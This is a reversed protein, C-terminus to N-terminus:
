ANQAGGTLEFYIEELSEHKLFAEIVAINNNVLVKIVESSNIEKSTVILEDNDIKINDFGFKDNLIDQAFTVNDVRLVLSKQDSLSLHAKDIEKILIGHDIIGFRTAVLDLESLIHSSVILTMGYEENLLKITKRVDVIGQPDLGNVPEDLIVISPNGLIANAIGLRQKMGMSYKKFPKDVGNLGVIKLVRETENPDKIGKLRRYYDINDHANMYGYFNQGVYFGVDHREELLTKESNSGNISVSGGSPNSLGLILKFLTTKGAGNKGVLGYIDGKKVNLSVNDVAYFKDYKKSIGNLSIVNESM